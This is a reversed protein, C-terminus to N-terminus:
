LAVGLFQKYFELTEAPLASVVGDYFAQEGAESEDGAKSGFNSVFNAVQSLFKAVRETDSSAYGPGGTWSYFASLLAIDVTTIM